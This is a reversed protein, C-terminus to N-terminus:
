RYYANVTIKRPRKSKGSKGSRKLIWLLSNFFLGFIGGNREEESLEEKMMRSSNVDDKPKRQKKSAENKSKLWANFSQEAEDKLFDFNAFRTWHWLSRSVQKEDQEVQKLEQEAMKKRHQALKRQRGLKKQEKTM